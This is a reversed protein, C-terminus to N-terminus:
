NTRLRHMELVVTWRQDLRQQKIERMLLLLNPDRRELRDASNHRDVWCDQFLCQWRNRLEIEIARMLQTLLHQVNGKYPTQHKCGHRIGTHKIHVSIRKLDVFVGVGLM